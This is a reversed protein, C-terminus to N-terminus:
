RKARPIQAVRERDCLQSIHSPYPNIADFPPEWGRKEERWDEIPMVFPLHGHPRFWSDVSWRQGGQSDTLVATWHVAGFDFRARVEPAAVSWGDLLALDSLVHLFNTTNSANDVCDTRGILDADRDNIAQDNALVPLYKKALEEMRWIGIRVRQLRDHLGDGSCVAMHRSVSALDMADLTVTEQTFCSWNLCIRLIVTGDARIEYDPPLPRVTLDNLSDVAAEVALGTALAM